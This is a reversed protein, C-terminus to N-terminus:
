AFITKSPQEKVQHSKQYNMKLLVYWYPTLKLRLFILVLLCCYHLKHYDLDRIYHVYIADYCRRLGRGTTRHPLTPPTHPGQAESCNSWNWVGVEPYARERVTQRYTRPPITCHIHSIRSRLHSISFISDPKERELSVQVCVTVHLPMCLCACVRFYPQSVCVCACACVSVCVCVCVFDCVHAVLCVCVYMCSWMEDWRM